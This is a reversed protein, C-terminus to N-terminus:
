KGAKQKGARKRLDELEQKEKATMGINKEKSPTPQGPNKLLGLEYPSFIEKEPQGMRRAGEYDPTLRERYADNQAKSLSVSAEYIDRVLWRPISPTRGAETAKAWLRNVIDMVPQMADFAAQEGETFRPTDNFQNFAKVFQLQAAPNGRLADSYIEDLTKMARNAADYQKSIEAIDKKRDRIQDNEKKLSDRTRWESKPLVDDKAPLPGQSQPQDPLMVSRAPVQVLDHKVQAYTNPNGENISDIAGTEARKERWTEYAVPIKFVENAIQLGQLIRDMPDKKQRQVPQVPNIAM